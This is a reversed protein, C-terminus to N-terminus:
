PSASATPAARMADLIRRLTAARPRANFPSLGMRARDKAVEAVLQPTLTRREEAFAYALAQDCLLNILRPLGGTFGHVLAAAEDPFIEASGGAIELRRHIYGRTEAPSLPGLDCHVAVRQLFQRLDPRRLTELLEPQGVLVIQLLQDRENNVNSLMRLEELREPSLNQAEDIVLVARKGEAYRALLFDVFAHYALAPDEPPNKMDFALAVWRLLPVPTL